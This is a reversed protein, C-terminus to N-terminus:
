LMSKIKKKIETSAKHQETRLKFPTTNVYNDLNNEEKHIYDSNNYLMKLLSTMNLNRCIMEPTELKKNPKIAVNNNILDKVIEVRGSKIAMTLHTEVENSFNNINLGNRMMLKCLGDMGKSLALAFPSNGNKDYVNIAVDKCKLILEEAIKLQNCKIALTLPYDTENVIYGIHDHIYKVDIIKSSLKELGKKIALSLPTERDYDKDTILAGKTVISDAIGYSDKKIALTLATDGNTYGLEIDHALIANGLSEYGKEICLTIPRKYEKNEINIGKGTKIIAKAIDICDNSLSLTLANEKYTSSNQKQNSYYLDINKNIFQKALENYKKESTEKYKLVCVMLANEGFTNIQNIVTSNNSLEEVVNDMGKNLALFLATLGNNNTVSTDAKFKILQVALHDLDRNIALHLPTNGYADPINLLIDDKLLTNAFLSLRNKIAYTLITNGNFEEYKNLEKGHEKMILIASTEDKNELAKILDNFYNM